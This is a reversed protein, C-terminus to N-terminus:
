HVQVIEDIIVCSVIDADRKKEAIEKETYGRTKMLPECKENTPTTVASAPQSSAASGSARMFGQYVTGLFGSSTPRQNSSHQFMAQTLNRARLRENQQQVEHTLSINNLRREAAALLASTRAQAQQVEKEEQARRKAEEAALRSEIYVPPLVDSPSM